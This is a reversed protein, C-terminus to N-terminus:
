EKGISNMLTIAIEELHCKEQLMEILEDATLYGVPEGDNLLDSMVELLGKNSDGM